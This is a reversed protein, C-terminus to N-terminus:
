HRSQLQARATLTGLSRADADADWSGRQWEWCADLPHAAVARRRRRCTLQSGGISLRRCADPASCGVGVFVRRVLNEPGGTAPPPSVHHLYSLRATADTEPLALQIRPARLCIALLLLFTAVPDQSLARGGQPLIATGLVLKETRRTDSTQLISNKNVKQNKQQKEELITRSRCRTKTFDPTVASIVSSTKCRWKALQPLTMSTYMGLTMGACVGLPKAYMEKSQSSDTCRATIILNM